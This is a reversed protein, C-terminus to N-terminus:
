GLLEICLLLSGLEHFSELYLNTFLEARDLLFGTFHTLQELLHLNPVLPVLIAVLLSLHLQNSHTLEVDAAGKGRKQNWAHVLVKGVPRHSLSERELVRGQLQPQSILKLHELRGIDCGYYSPAWSVFLPITHQNRISGFTKRSRSLFLFRLASAILANLLAFLRWFHRNLLLRLLKQELRERDLYVVVIHIPNVGVM